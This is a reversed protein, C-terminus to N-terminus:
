RPLTYQPLFHSNSKERSKLPLARQRMSHRQRHKPLDFWPVCAPQGTLETAKGMLWAVMLAMSDSLLIPPFTSLFSIMLPPEPQKSM